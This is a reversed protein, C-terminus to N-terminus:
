DCFELNVSIHLDLIRIGECKALLKFCKLPLSLESTPLRIKLHIQRLSNMGYLQITTIFTNMLAPNQFSFANLKYLLAYGVVDLHVQRFVNFLALFNQLM